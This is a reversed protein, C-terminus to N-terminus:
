TSVALREVREAGVRHRDEIIESRERYVGGPAFPKVAEGGERGARESSWVDDQPREGLERRHRRHTGYVQGLNTEDELPPECLDDRRWAFPASPADVDGRGVLDAAHGEVDDEDGPERLAEERQLHGFVGKQGVRLARLKPRAEAGVDLTRREFPERQTECDPGRALPDDHRIRAEVHLLRTRARGGEVREFHQAGRLPRERAEILQRTAGVRRGACAYSPRSRESRLVCNVFRLM